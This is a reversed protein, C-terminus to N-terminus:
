LDPMGDVHWRVLHDRDVLRLRENKRASERAQATFDSSTVFVGLDAGNEEIVGKFQQIAPRGVPHEPAYRKCQVLIVREGDKAVGDIGADTGAPTVWATMGADTFFSMVHQEFEAPSLALWRAQLRALDNPMPHKRPAMIDQVVAARAASKLRLLAADTALLALIGQVFLAKDDHTDLLAAILSTLGGVGLFFVLLAPLGIAGGFAAIGVGSGALVPAALLTAPLAVRLGVPLGGYGGVAAAVLRKILALAPGAPRTARLKVLKEQISLRESALIARAQLLWAAAAQRTPDTAPTPDSGPDSVGLWDLVARREADTLRDLDKPLYDALAAPQIVDDTALWDLIAQRCSEEDDTM